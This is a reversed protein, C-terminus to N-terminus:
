GGLRGLVTEYPVVKGNQWFVTKPNHLVQRFEWNTVNAPADFPGRAGSRYARQLNLGDLNFNIKKANGIAQQFAQM